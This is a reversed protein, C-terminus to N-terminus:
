RLVIVFIETRPIIIEERLDHSYSGSCHVITGFLNKRAMATALLENKGWCCNEVFMYPVGTEEQVRVLEFCNELSYECGVESAVAIGKKMAYVAIETHTRWDSFIFVADVGDTALAERYDSFGMAAQGADAVLTLAREVRDEYVDCVAIINLDANKLLVGRLLNYGRKGLGIVCANIM